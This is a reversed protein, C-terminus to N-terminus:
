VSVLPRMGTESWYYGGRVTRLSILRMNNNNYSSFNWEGYDSPKVPIETIEFSTSLPFFRDNSDDAVLMSLRNNFDRLTNEVRQERQRARMSYNWM